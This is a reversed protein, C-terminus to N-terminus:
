QRLSKIKLQHRIEAVVMKAIKLVDKQELCLLYDEPKYGKSLIKEMCKRVFVPDIM